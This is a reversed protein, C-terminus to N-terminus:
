EVRVQRSVSIVSGDPRGRGYVRITAMGPETFVVDVQRHSIRLEMTCAEHEKPQYVRQYPVVDAMHARAVVATTDEDICGGGYTTVTVQLPEGARVAPPVEVGEPGGINAIRLASQGPGPFPQELSLATSSLPPPTIDQGCGLQWCALIAVGIMTYPRSRRHRSAPSM